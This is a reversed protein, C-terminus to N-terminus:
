QDHIARTYERYEEFLDVIGEVLEIRKDSKAPLRARLRLLEDVLADIRGLQWIYQHRALRLNLNDVLYLGLPTLGVIAGRRSRGLHDDLEPGCPDVFGSTGDNPVAPDDSVWKDSKARNCFPCAYVLNAYDNELEPFRSKPAFHDIHSGARGGVYLDPDDCYGCRKRFDERLQAKYARYSQSQVSGSRVPVHDRLPRKGSQAM